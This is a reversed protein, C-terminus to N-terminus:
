HEIKITVPNLRGRDAQLAMEVERAVPEALHGAPDATVVAEKCDIAVAIAPDVIRGFQKSRVRSIEDFQAPTRAPHCAQGQEVAVVIACDVAGIRM